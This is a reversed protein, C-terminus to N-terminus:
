WRRKPAGDPADPKEDPRYLRKAVDSLDRMGAARLFAAIGAGQSKGALSRSPGGGSADRPAGALTVGQIPMGLIRQGGVYINHYWQGRATTLDDYGVGEGSRSSHVMMNNGAYIAVHSIRGGHEAFFMLDGPRLSSFDRGVAQGLLAMERSTRPLEVGHAAFVYQVFGSCDFGQPTTGGWVYPTGVQKDATALLSGAAPSVVRGARSASAGGRASTGGGSASEIGGRPFRRLIGSTPRLNGKGFHLSFGGRYEWAGRTGDFLGSMADLPVLRRAEVDLRLRSLLSYSMITGVSVVKHTAMTGDALAEGRVGFGGFIRPELAGFTGAAGAARGPNLVLDADGSFARLKQQGLVSTTDVPQWSAHAVGGSGRLAVPGLSLTLSGGLLLPNTSLSQDIAVYPTIAVNAQASLLAPLALVVLAYRSM